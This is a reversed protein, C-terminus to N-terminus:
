VCPQGLLIRHALRKGPPNVWAVRPPGLLNRHPSWEDAPNARSTCPQGLPNQPALWDDSPNVWRLPSGPPHPAPPPLPCTPPSTRLWLDQREVVRFGLQQNVALMPHNAEANWTHVTGPADRASRTAAQLNAAKLAIGLRRGRHERRVLTSRQEFQGPRTPTGALETFGVLVGGAAAVTTWGTRGHERRHAEATRLREVTWRKPEIALEDLPVEQDVLGLLGCYEDVYQAPCADPWSILEYERHYPAAEAALAELRDTPLDLVLHLASYQRTFGHAEAFAPGPVPGAAAYPTFTEGLVVTRHDAAAQQRVADLLLTGAGRRRASPLVALDAVLLHRNESQSFTLWAAGVVRSGDVCAFCAFRYEPPPDRLLTEAEARPLLTPFERLSAVEELVAYASALDVRGVVSAASPDVGPTAPAADSGASPIDGATALPDAGNGAPAASAGGGDRAPGASGEGYVASPHGPTVRTVRM